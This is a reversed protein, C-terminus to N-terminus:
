TPRCARITSPGSASGPAPARFLLGALIAYLWLEVRGFADGGGAWPSAMAGVLGALTWVLILALSAAVLIEGHLPQAGGPRLRSQAPSLRDDVLGRGGGGGLRGALRRRAVGDRLRARRRLGRHGRALLALGPWDRRAPAQRTLAWGTGAGILVSMTSLLTSQTVALWVIAAATLLRQHDRAIFAYCVTWPVM